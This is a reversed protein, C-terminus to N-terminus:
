GYMQRIAQYNRQVAAKGAIVPGHGPLVYEAELGAIRDIQAMLETHSGGPFDTRGVGQAFVLDGTALAKKEPWYVCISGPEHGPTHYIEVLGDLAEVAGEILDVDVEFEPVESGLYNYIMAGMENLYDAAAPHMGVKLGLDSFRAIAEMHDPHSHTLIVLRIDDPM